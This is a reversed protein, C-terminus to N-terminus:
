FEDSVLVRGIVEGEFKDGGDLVWVPYSWEYYGPEYKKLGENMEDNGFVELVWLVGSDGQSLRVDKESGEVSLEVYFWEAEAEDFGCYSLINKRDDGSLGDLDLVGDPSVCNVIERALIRAEADRVDIHHAYSVSSIGLIVFAIFSVLLLRYIMVIGEGIAGKKNKM